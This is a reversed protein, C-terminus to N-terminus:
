VPATVLLRVALPLAPECLLPPQTAVYAGLMEGPQTLALMRLAARLEDFVLGGSGIFVFVALFDGAHLMAGTPIRREGCRLRDREGGKHATVVAHALRMTFADAHSQSFQLSVCLSADTVNM